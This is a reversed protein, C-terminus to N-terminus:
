RTRGAPRGQHCISEFLGVIFREDVGGSRNMNRELTSGHCLMAWGHLQEVAMCV